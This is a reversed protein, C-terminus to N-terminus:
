RYLTIEYASVAAGVRNQIRIGYQIFDISYAGVPLAKDDGWNGNVDRFSITAAFTEILLDTCFIADAQDYTSGANYADPANGQEVVYIENATGASAVLLRGDSTARIIISQLGTQGVVHAMTRTFDTDVESEKIYKPELDLGKEPILRTRIKQKM